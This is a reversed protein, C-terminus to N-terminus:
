QPVVHSEGISWRARVFALVAEEQVDPHGLCGQAQAVCRHEYPHMTNPIDPTVLGLTPAWNTDEFPAGFMAFAGDEHGNAIPHTSASIRDSWSSCTLQGM